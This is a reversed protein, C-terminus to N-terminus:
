PRRNPPTWDGFRCIHAYEMVNGLGNEISFPCHPANKGSRSSVLHGYNRFESFNDWGWVLEGIEIDPEPRKPFEFVPRDFYVTPLSGDARETGSLFGDITYVGTAIDPTEWAVYLPYPFTRKPTNDDIRLVKGYVDWGGHWVRDGVQVGELNKSKTEM